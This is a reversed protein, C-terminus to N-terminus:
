RLKRSEKIDVFDDVAIEVTIKYVFITIGEGKGDCIEVSTEDHVRCWGSSGINLNMGLFNIPKLSDDSKWILIKL